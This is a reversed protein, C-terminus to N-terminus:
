QIRLHSPAAPDNGYRGAIQAFRPGVQKRTLGHCALYLMPRYDSFRADSALLRLAVLANEASRHMREDAPDM